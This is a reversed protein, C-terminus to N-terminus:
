EFAIWEYEGEYGGIPIIFSNSTVVVEDAKINLPMGNSLSTSSYKYCTLVYKPYNTYYQNLNNAYFGFSGYNTNKCVFIINSVDFDPKPITIYKCTFTNAGMYNFSKSSSGAVATGKAWKKGSDFLGGLLGLITICIDKM